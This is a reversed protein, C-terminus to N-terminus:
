PGPSSGLRIMQGQLFKGLRQLSQTQPVLLGPFGLVRQM